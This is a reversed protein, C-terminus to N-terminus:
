LMSLCLPQSKIPLIYVAFLFLCKAIQSLYFCTLIRVVQSKLDQLLYGYGLWLCVVCALFLDLFM